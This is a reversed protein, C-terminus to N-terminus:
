VKLLYASRPAMATGEGVAIRKGTWVDIGKSPLNLGRPIAIPAERDDWNFVALRNRSGSPSLWFRPIPNDYLDLPRASQRMPPFLKRLAAIGRSNLRAISDSLFIDGGCMHVVTLWVKLESFTAEPGAM